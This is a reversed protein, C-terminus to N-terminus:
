MPLLSLGASIHLRPTAVTWLDDFSVPENFLQYLPGFKKQLLLLTSVFSLPLLISSTSSFLSSILVFHHKVLLIQLASSKMLNRIYELQFLNQWMRLLTLINMFFQLVSRLFNTPANATCLILPACCSKIFSIRCPHKASSYSNSFVFYSSREPFRLSQHLSLSPNILTPSRNFCAIPLVLYNQKLIVMNKFQSGSFVVIVTM